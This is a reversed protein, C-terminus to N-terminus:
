RSENEPMERDNAWPLFPREVGAHVPGDQVPLALLGDTVATHVLDGSGAWSPVFAREGDILRAPRFAQRKANPRVAEALEVSRWPLDARRGSMAQMIPWAFLHACALASVPNGPLAIVARHRDPSVGIRIPKGPQISAGEVLPQIGHAEFAAPFWDRRGASVGGVTVVCDAHSMARGVAEVTADREDCVHEHTVESAGMINFLALLMTGNSNRIEHAEVSAGVPKVEDGSTLIAVTPRGIISLRNSGVSAAIGVHHPRIVTGTHIVVEGARADSGRHHIGSGATVANVSFSVPDARDSQEHAIVADCSDPVAAGTAIAVCSGNEVTRDFVAGAHIEAAVSLAAGPQVDVARVAYGDLMSRNFPPLDRDAVVDEALVGGIVASLDVTQVPRPTIVDLVTRLSPEYAQGRMTM